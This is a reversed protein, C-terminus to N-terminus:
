NASLSYIFFYIKEKLRMQMSQIARAFRGSMHDPHLSLKKLEEFLWVEKEKGKAKIQGSFILELNNLHHLISIEELDLVKIYQPSKKTLLFNTSLSMEAMSYQGGQLIASLCSQEVFFMGRDPYIKQELVYHVLKSWEACIENQGRFVIVGTNWYGIIKEKEQLTETYRLQSMDVQAYELLAAWYKGNDDELNKVGIGKQAVPAICINSTSTLVESPENFLVTDSDLFIYRDYAFNKMIFNCVIPKNALGYYKHKQNLSQEIFTAGLGKLQTKTEESVPFQKRPQVCFIDFHSLKGGFQRLSAISLLTNKELLGGEICYIICAKPM